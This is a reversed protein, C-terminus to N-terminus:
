IEFVIDTIQPHVDKWDVQGNKYSAGRAGTSIDCSVTKGELFDMAAEIETSKHGNM